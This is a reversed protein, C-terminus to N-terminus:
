TKIRERRNEAREFALEVIRGILKEYTRGGARAQHTFISYSPSLGPLPNIELFTPLGKADLKLDVRAFDRCGLTRYAIEAMELMERELGQGIQAPCILQKEHQLKHEYSYFSDPCRVEAIPLLELEENGLVGVCFERGPAFSEVLCDQRYTRLVWNAQRELEEQSRVLSSRRIGMSSGEGNPKVFLPFELEVGRLEAESAVRRFLPTRVGRDVMLAKTLAKDLSIALTLGDSGTYPISVHDLWAPVISERCRGRIGEAINFVMQPEIRAIRQPFDAALAVGVADYGCAGIAELLARITADEDYEAGFDEPLDGLCEQAESGDHVLAVKV